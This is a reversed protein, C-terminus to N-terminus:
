PGPASDQGSRARNWLGILLLVAGVAAIVAGLPAVSLALMIALLGFFGAGVSEPLVSLVLMPTLAVLTAVLGWLLLGRGWILTTMM